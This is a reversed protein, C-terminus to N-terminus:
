TTGSQQWYHNHANGAIYVSKWKGLNKSVSPSEINRLIKWDLSYSIIDRPKLIRKGSKLSISCQKM